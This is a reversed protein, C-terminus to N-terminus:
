KAGVVEFPLAPLMGLATRVQRPKKEESKAYEITREQFASFILNGRLGPKIKEPDVQLSVAVTDGEVAVGQVSIGDPPESLEMRIQNLEKITSAVAVKAVKGPILRLKEERAFHV